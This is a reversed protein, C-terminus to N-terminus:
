QVQHKAQQEAVKDAEPRDYRILDFSIQAGRYGTYDIKRKVVGIGSVLWMTEKRFPELTLEKLVPRGKASIEIRSIWAVRWGSFNGAPVTITEFEQALARDKQKAQAKLDTPKGREDRYQYTVDRRTEHIWVAGPGIREGAPLFEGTTATPRNGLFEVPENFPLGDFRLAAGDLWVNATEKKDDFGVQVIGPEGERPSSVIKMAWTDGLAFNKPGSVRYVWSSGPVLPMYEHPIDQTPEAAGPEIGFITTDPELKSNLLARNALVGKESQTTGIETENSSERDPLLALVALLGVIVLLIIDRSKKESM